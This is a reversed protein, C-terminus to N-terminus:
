PLRGCGEAAPTRSSRNGFDLLTSSDVLSPAPTYFTDHLAHTCTRTRTSTHTHARLGNSWFLIVSYHKKACFVNFICIKVLTPLTCCGFAPRFICCQMYYTCTGRCMCTLINLIHVYWYALILLGWFKCRLYQRLSKSYGVRERLFYLM